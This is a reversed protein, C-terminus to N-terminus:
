AFPDEEGETAAVFGDAEATSARIQERVTQIPGSSLRSVLRQYERSERVLDQMWTTMTPPLEPTQMNDVSFLTPVIKGVPKVGKPAPIATTINAWTKGDSEDHMVQLQAPVGLLKSLDFGALEQETFKRGRWAELFARLSAKANLSMTFRRSLVRPGADIPPLEPLEFQIIVKRSDKNYIDSHQTGVDYVGVCIALHLGAPVPEIESGSKSSVILPM